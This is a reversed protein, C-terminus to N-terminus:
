KGREIRFLLDSSTARGNEAQVTWKQSLSYRV